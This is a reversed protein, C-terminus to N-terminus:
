TKTRVQKNYVREGVLFAEDFHQYEATLRETESEAPAEGEQTSGFPSGLSLGVGEGDGVGERSLRSTFLRVSGTM